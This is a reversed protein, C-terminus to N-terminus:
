KFSGGRVYYDTAAEYGEGHGAEWAERLDDQNYEVGGKDDPHRQGLWQDFTWSM